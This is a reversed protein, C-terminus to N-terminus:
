DTVVGNRRLRETFLRLVERSQKDWYGWDHGGPLQRYEHPIKKALLIAAFDRNTELFGDELGCDFYIFPM